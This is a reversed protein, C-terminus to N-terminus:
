VDPGKLDTPTEAKIRVSNWNKLRLCIDFIEYHPHPDFVKEQFEGTEKDLRLIIGKTEKSYMKEIAKCYAAVQLYYSKYIKKSTKFDVVYCKDGISIVADVTGAFCLIPYDSHCYVKEETSHWTINKGKAWKKFANVCNISEEDDPLEPQEKIIGLKWRIGDSIWHHVTDGVEAAQHSIVKSASQIGKFIHDVVKAPLMFTGISDTPALRYPELSKLFFEAGETVAWDMLYKPFCSDIIRTVSPIKDWVKASLSTQVEYSHKERDYYLFFQAGDKYEILHAHKMRRLATNSQSM